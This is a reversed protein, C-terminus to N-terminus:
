EKIINIISTLMQNPIIICRDAEQTVLLTVIYIIQDGYISVGTTSRIYLESLIGERAWQTQKLLGALSTYLEILSLDQETDNTNRLSYYLMEKESRLLVNYSANDIRFAQDYFNSKSILLDDIGKKKDNAIAVIFRGSFPYDINNQMESKGVVSVSISRGRGCKELEKNVEKKIASTKDAMKKPLTNNFEYLRNINYISSVIIGVICIIVLPSLIHNRKLFAYAPKLKLFGTLIDLITKITALM